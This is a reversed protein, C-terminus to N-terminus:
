ARCAALRSRSAAAIAASRAAPSPYPQSRTGCRLSGGALHDGRVCSGFLVVCKVWPYRDAWDAVIAAIEPLTLGPTTM